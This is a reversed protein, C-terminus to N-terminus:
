LSAHQRARLRLRARLPQPRPGPRPLYRRDPSTRYAVGTDLVAVTVGGGGPNGAAIANDWAAGVNIGFPGTFNWQLAAWGGPGAAARSRQSRLRDRPRRLEARRPRRAARAELTPRRRRGRRGTRRRGARHARRGAGSASEPPGGSPRASAAQDIGARYKVVLEGPVHPAAAAPGALTGPVSSPPWSPRWFALIPDAQVSIGPSVNSPVPRVAHEFRVDPSFYRDIVRAFLCSDAM